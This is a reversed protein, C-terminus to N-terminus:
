DFEILIRKFRELPPNLKEVELIDKHKKTKGIKMYYNYVTSRSVGFVEEIEKCTRFLKEKEGELSDNYKVKYHYTNSNESSKHRPMNEKISIFM